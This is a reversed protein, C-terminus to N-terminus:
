SAEEALKVFGEVTKLFDSARLDYSVYRMGEFMRQRPDFGSVATGITKAFEIAYTPELPLMVHFAEVVEGLVRFQENVPLHKFYKTVTPVMGEMVMELEAAKKQKRAHEIVKKTAKGSAGPAPNTLNVKQKKQKEKEKKQKARLAEKRAKEKAKTHKVGLAKREKTYDNILKKAEPSVNKERHKKKLDSYSSWATEFVKGFDKKMKEVENPDIKSYKKHLKLFAKAEAEDMPAKPDTKHQGTQVGEWVKKEHDSKAKLREKEKKEHEKMEEQQKKEQEQLGKELDDQYKDHGQWEDKDMGKLGKSTSWKQRIQAQQDPPLSTFLVMHGTTKSKFRVKKEIVQERFQNNLVEKAHEPHKQLLKNFREATDKFGIGETLHRHLLKKLEAKELDDESHVKGGDDDEEEESGEEKKKNKNPDQHKAEELEDPDELVSEEREKKPPAKKHPVNHEEEEFDDASPAEVEESPEEVSPEEAEEPSPKKPREVHNPNPPAKKTTEKKPASAKGKEIDDLEKRVKEHQTKAIAKTEDPYKKRISRIEKQEDKGLSSKQIKVLLEKFRVLAKQKTKEADKTATPAKKEPKSPAKKTPKDPPLRLTGSDKATRIDM